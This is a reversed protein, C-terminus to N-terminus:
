KLFFNYYQYMNKGYIEYYLKEIDGNIFYNRTKYNKFYLNSFKIYIDPCKRNEFISYNYYTSNQELWWIPNRKWNTYYLM